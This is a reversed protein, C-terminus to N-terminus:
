KKESLGVLIKPHRTSEQGMRLNMGGSGCDGTGACPTKSGSGTRMLHQRPFDRSTTRLRKGWGGCLGGEKRNTPHGHVSAPPPDPFPVDSFEYTPGDVM